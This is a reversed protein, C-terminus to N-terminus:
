KAGQDIWARILGIQEPTLPDPWYYVMFAPDCFLETFRARDAERPPRM